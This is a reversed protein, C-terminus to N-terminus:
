DPLALFGRVVATFTAPQHAHVLHGADIRVLRGDAVTEAMQAVHERPM